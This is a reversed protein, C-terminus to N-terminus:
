TELITGKYNNQQLTFKTINSIHVEGVVKFFGKGRKVPLTIPSKYYIEKNEKLEIYKPYNFLPFLFIYGILVLVGSIVFDIRFGVCTMVLAIVVTLVTLSIHFSPNFINLFRCLNIKM